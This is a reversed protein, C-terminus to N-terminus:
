AVATGSGPQRKYLCIGINASYADRGFAEIPIGAVQIFALFM